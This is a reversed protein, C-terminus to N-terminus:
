IHTATTREHILSPKSFLVNDTNLPSTYSVISRTYQLLEPAILSLSQPSLVRCNIFDHCKCNLQVTTPPKMGRYPVGSRFPQCFYDAFTRPLLPRSYWDEAWSCFRDLADEACPDHELRDSIYGQIDTYSRTYKEAEFQKPVFNGTKWEELAGRYQSNPYFCLIKLWFFYKCSNCCVCGNHRPGFRDM